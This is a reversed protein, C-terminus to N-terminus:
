RFGLGPPAWRTHLGPCPGRTHGSLVKLPTGSSSLLRVLGDQYAIALRQGDPSLALETPGREYWAGPEHERRLSSILLGRGAEWIAPHKPDVGGYSTSQGGTFITRGNPHFRAVRAFGYQTFGGEAQKPWALRVLEAGTEVDWLLGVVHEQTTEDSVDSSNVGNPTVTVTTHHGDGLTVLRRGDPSFAGFFVNGMHGALRHLERGTEADWIRANRDAAATVVRRGDPSFAVSCVPADCGNLEARVAGSDLDIIRPPNGPYGGSTVVLRCGDHSVDIAGAPNM